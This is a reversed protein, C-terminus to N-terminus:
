KGIWQQRDPEPMVDNTRWSFFILATWEKHNSFGYVPDLSQILLGTKPNYSTAAIKIVGQQHSRKFLALEPVEVGVLPVPIAPIGFLTKDADVSIAGIRPEIVVEAEERKDLLDIGKRMIRDRIASLLYKSDTGEAYTADVFVKTGEALNFALKDAARDAAASFLLQETATRQPASERQSSCATLFLLLSASLLVPRIM